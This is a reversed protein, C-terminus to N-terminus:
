GYEQPPMFFTLRARPQLPTKVVIMWNNTNTQTIHHWCTFKTMQKMKTKVTDALNTSCQITCLWEISCPWTIIYVLSLQTVFRTHFGSGTQELDLRSYRYRYSKKGYRQTVSGRSLSSLYNHHRLRTLAEWSESWLHLQGRVRENGNTIGMLTIDWLGFDLPELSCYLSNWFKRNM